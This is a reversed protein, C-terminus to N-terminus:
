QAQAIEDHVETKAIIWKLAGQYDEKRLDTVKEIHFEHFFDKVIGKNSELRNRIELAHIPPIFESVPPKAEPVIEADIIESEVENEVYATSIVDPFLRRALRSLCSKFLMDSPHKEWAGGTKFIGAMRAEAIAYSAEYVEKTDSRTGKIKCILHTSEIIELKHGAKRIMSNMLRPSLEIKGQINNMGGFLCQVPPLGLERAYLMISLIGGESGLNAFFKSNAAQKAMVQYVTLEEPSPILSNEM